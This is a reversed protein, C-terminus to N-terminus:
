FRSADRKHKTPFAAVLSRRGPTPTRTNELGREFILAMSIEEPALPDLCPAGGSLPRRERTGPGESSKLM